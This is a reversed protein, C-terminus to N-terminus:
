LNMNLQEKAAQVIKKEILEKTYHNKNDGYKFDDIMDTIQLWLITEHPNYGFNERYIEYLEYANDIAYNQNSIIQQLLFRIQANVQAEKTPEDINLEELAKNFYQEVEFINLPEELSVLIHLAASSYNKEVMTYAWTVYDRADIQGQSKKYFLRSTEM